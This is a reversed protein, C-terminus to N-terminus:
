PAVSPVRAQVSAFPLRRFARVGVPPEALTHLPLQQELLDATDLWLQTGGTTNSDMHLLTHLSLRASDKASLSDAEQIGGERARQAGPRARSPSCSGTRGLLLPPLRLHGFSIHLKELM